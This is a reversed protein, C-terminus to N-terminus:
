RQFLQCTIKKSLLYLFNYGNKSTGSMCIVQINFIFIEFGSYKDLIERWDNKECLSLSLIDDDEYITIDVKM